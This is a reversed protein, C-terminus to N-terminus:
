RIATSLLYKYKHVLDMRERSITRNNETHHRILHMCRDSWFIKYFCFFINYAILNLICIYGVLSVAHLTKDQVQISLGEYCVISLTNVCNHIILQSITNYANKQQINCYRGINHTNSLKGTRIM